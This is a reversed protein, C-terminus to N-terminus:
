VLPTGNPRPSLPGRKSTLELLLSENTPGPKLIDPHFVLRKGGGRNFTVYVFTSRNTHATIMHDLRLALASPFVAEYRNIVKIESLMVISASSSNLMSKTFAENEIRTVQPIRNYEEFEITEQRRKPCV